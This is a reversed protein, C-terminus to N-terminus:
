TPRAFTGLSAAVTRQFLLAGSVLLLVGGLLFLVGSPDSPEPGRQMLPRVHASWGTGVVFLGLLVSASAPVLRWRALRPHLATLAVLVLSMAVQVVWPPGSPAGFAISEDVSHITMALLGVCVLVLERTM